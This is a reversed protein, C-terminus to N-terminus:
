STTDPFTSEYCPVAPTRKREGREREELLTDMGVRKHEVLWAQMNRNDERVVEYDILYVVAIAM